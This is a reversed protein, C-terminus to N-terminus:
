AEDGDEDDPVPSDVVPLEGGDASRVLWRLRDPGSAPGGAPPTVTLPVPDPRPLSVFDLGDLSYRVWTEIRYDGPELLGAPLDLDVEVTQADPVALTRPFDLRLFLREEALVLLRLQVAPVPRYFHCRAEAVLGADAPVQEVPEGEASRLGFDYLRAVEHKDPVGGPRSLLLHVAQCSRCRAFYQQWRALDTSRCRPCERRSGVKGDLFQVWLYETKGLQDKVTVALRGMRQAAVEAERATGQIPGQYHRGRKFRRLRGDALQSWDIGAPPSETLAQPEDVM